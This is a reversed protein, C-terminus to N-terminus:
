MGNVTGENELVAAMERAKKGAEEYDLSRTFELVAAMDEAFGPSGGALRLGEMDKVLAGIRASRGETCADALEGLKVAMDAPSAEMKEKEPEEDFLSTGRVAANVDELASCFAETESFCFSKDEGKAATELDKAQLFLAQLGLTACIGKYAHVQVTYSNWDGAALADRIVALGKEVGSSFQKLTAAYTSFSGGAYHLGTKLDFAEIKELEGRIQEKRSDMVEAAVGANVPAALTYQGEPLFKRLAANLSAPEIPKSVFGNMGSSLFIAQAGQVANASLAVIPMSAYPSHKDEGAMSRILRTTETGDLDPMMHDMFVLHYPNGSEVSAKVKEVAEFGGSATEASIGHKNLFGLAVTRNVPVDDVVLVRLGEKATVVPINENREVKASDGPVLPLYVTFTSGSGYVSKVDIWGDMLSVLNKTIALGLGTGMIGRNRRSDLQQFSGFLKPIDEDRIGIGTDAIEAVLYEMEASVHRASAARRRSRFVSFSVRGEQTYKVANNVINTLIQRIRIEDGYLIEPISGDFSRKFELSKGRAIFECMGAISDYLVRINFHVPVLDLKGAEIKSFDLIDNIITLLSKSMRKIDEFYGKQHPSLNETPMLDSMGIIANMPTRIEHSMTALFQSKARTAEEAEVRARDIYTVDNLYIFRSGTNDRLKNSIISFHLAEGNIEIEKVSMVSEESVLVDGMMLKMDMNRFLDLVPRGLALAPNEVHAFQALSKSLHTICNLKDVIVIMMPTVDMLTVFTDTTRGAETEQYTVFYIILYFLVSSFILVSEHIVLESYSAQWGAIELPVRFYIFVFNVANTILLYQALCRPNNYITAVCCISLYITFFFEGNQNLLVIASFAAYLLFPCFFAADLVRKLPFQIILMLIPTLVGMVITLHLREIDEMHMADRLRIVVYVFMAVFVIINGATYYRSKAAGAPGAAPNAQM